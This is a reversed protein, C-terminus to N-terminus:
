SPSPASHPQSRSVLPNATVCNEYPDPLLQRLATARRLSAALLIPNSSQQVARRKALSTAGSHNLRHANKPSTNFPPTQRRAADLLLKLIDPHDYMIAMQLPGFGTHCKHCLYVDADQGLLLQVLRENGEKAALYLPTIGLTDQTDACAGARLLSFAMRTGALSCVAAVRHLLSRGDRDVSDPDYRHQALTQFVAWHGREVAKHLPTQLECCKSSKPM